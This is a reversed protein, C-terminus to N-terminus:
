DKVARFPVSPRSLIVMVEEVDQFNVACQVKVKQFLSEKPRDVSVVTGLLVGKPMSGDFGSFVIRDGVVVDQAPSVYKLRCFNGGVGEAIARVRSREVMVDAAFRGDTVLLVESLGPHVKHIRGVAGFPTVVSMGYEIGAESGTGLFIARFWPSVDHGVVRAGLTRREVAQSYSLLEKLRRNELVADRTAHLRERLETVEKRLRENERSVGVLAVYRNWVGSVGGRLFDAVSYVPRFLVAGAARVPEARELTSSPRVFVQIAAVLLAVAVLLRWWNRFFSGM